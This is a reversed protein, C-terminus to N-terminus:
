IEKFNLLYFKLGNERNERFHGEYRKSSHAIGPTGNYSTFSEMTDPWRVCVSPSLVMRPQGTSRESSSLQCLTPLATAYSPAAALRPGGM